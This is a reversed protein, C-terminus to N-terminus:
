HGFPRVGILWGHLGFAFVGWVLIGVATALLDRSASGVPRQVGAIRDRRRASRFDLIAWILFSGFLVVDGLRGNALLHGFAWLKVGLVMPHGLVGKMRTGPIHSAALLIFSALMLLAAVHRTWVPPVWLEVPMERTLGYGWVTLILGIISVLTHLLKWRSAGLRAIQGTRWDDAVIRISHAGLFLVLGLCLLTM